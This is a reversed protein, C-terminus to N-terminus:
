TQGNDKSKTFWITGDDQYVMYLMSDNKVVRRGNNYGTARAVNSALHGKYRAIAQADQTHFVVPTERNNANQYEVGSGGWHHFYGTITQGHGTFTQEEQAKVSYYPPIWNGQNYGQDLFVGQYKNSTNPQLPASEEIFPADMGRNRYGYPEFYFESNSEDVVWPDKFFVTSGEAPSGGGTLKNTIKVYQSFDNFYAFIKYTSTDRYTEFTDYNAIKNSINEWNFFKSNSYSDYSPIVKLTEVTDRTLFGYITDEWKKVTYRWHLIKVNETIDEGTNKKAFLITSIGEKKIIPAHLTDSTITGHIGGGSVKVYVKIENKITADKTDVTDLGYGESDIVWGNKPEYSYWKFYMSSVNKVTDEGYLVYAKCYVKYSERNRIYWDDTLTVSVGYSSTASSNYSPLDNFFLILLYLIILIHFKRNLM